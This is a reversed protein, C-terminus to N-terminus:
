LAGTSALNILGGTALTIALVLSVVEVYECKNAKAYRAFLVLAVCLSLLVIIM